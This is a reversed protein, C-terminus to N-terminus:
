LPGDVFSLCNNGVISGNKILIKDENYEGVKNNIIENIIKDEDQEIHEQDNDDEKIKTRAETFGINVLYKWM